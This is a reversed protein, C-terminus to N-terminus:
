KRFLKDFLNVTVVVSILKVIDGLIFPTLGYAIVNEKGVFFSLQLLGFMYMIAYGLFLVLSTKFFSKTCGKEAFYGCIYTTFIWGIIYGGSALVIPFGASFGSYVPIGIAGFLIYNLITLPGLKKGYILGIIGVAFTQGTIPVPTFPLIIKIQSFLALFITGSMILLISTVLNLNKKNEKIFSNILLGKNM